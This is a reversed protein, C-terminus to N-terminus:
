VIGDGNGDSDEGGWVFAARFVSFVARWGIGDVYVEMWAHANKGTLTVTNGNIRGTQPRTLAYGEVYRALIRLM